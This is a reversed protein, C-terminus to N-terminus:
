MSYPILYPQMFFIPDFFARRWNNRLRLKRM